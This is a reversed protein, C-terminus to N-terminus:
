RATATSVRTRQGFEDYGIDKVYTGTGAGTVGRAGQLQGGRDYSYALTEGDPFTLTVMRGLNDYEYKTSYTRPTEGDVGRVMTRDSRVTEGLRGYYFEERVFGNDVAKVRGARNHAEGPAGYSYYVDPISPYTIRDLRNYTYRYTIARGAGNAANPMLRLNPTVKMILNGAPDYTYDTRGTDPNDIMRRRGLRDYQATTRNGADDTTRVIENMINYGYTTTIDMGGADETVRTIMGRANRYIDKKVRRPDTLGLRPETVTTVFHQEPGAGADFARFGYDYLTERGMIGGGPMLVRRKRGRADYTFRTPNKLTTQHAYETAAGAVFFPQSRAIVRGMGDHVERGTATMGERKEGGALTQATKRTQIVRRLGDICTVTDLTEGSKWHNKNLTRATVPARALDTPYIFTVTAREQGTDYPGTVSTNRGFHDYTYFVSNGSTDTTRTPAGFRPDHKAQSTLGFSDTVRERHTRTAADYAYTLQYREKKANEPGIVQALNGYSDYNLNTVAYTDGDIYAHVRRLDGRTDYFGVRERFVRGAGDTVAIKEPATVYYRTGTDIIRYEIRAIVDDAGANEARNGRDIFTTVNGYHTGEPLGEDYAYEEATVLGPNEGGEYYATERSRLCPFYSQGEIVTLPAGTGERGYRTMTTVLPLDAGDCVRARSELGKRYFDSNYFKRETTMLVGGDCDLRRETVTEFGYFERETRDYRGDAYDYEMRQSHSSGDGAFVGGLPGERLGDSVSVESLVWRSQPMDVTNGARRYDLTFSGGLPRTVSRLLNTRGTRNLRAYIREGNAYVHDVLGDGDIDQLRM